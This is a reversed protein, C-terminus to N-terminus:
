LHEFAIEVILFGVKLNITFCLYHWLEKKASKFKNLSNLLGSANKNLVMLLKMNFDSTKNSCVQDQVSLTSSCHM